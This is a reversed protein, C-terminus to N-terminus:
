LARFQDRLGGLSELFDRLTRLPVVAVGEVFRETQESLTLIVSLIPRGDDGIRRRLIESRRIQARAFRRVTSPPFSSSWHKCDIALVVASSKAVIDIQARPRNLHLNDQVELGSALLLKACFDEFEGWDLYRSVEQPLLGLSCLAMAILIPEHLGLRVGLSDKVRVLSM